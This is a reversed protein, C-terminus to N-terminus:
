SFKNREMWEVAMCRMVVGVRDNVKIKEYLAKTHMRVTNVSIFLEEGIVNANKSQCIRQAIEIQRDSLGFYEQVKDWHTIRVTPLGDRGFSTGFSKREECLSHVANLIQPPPCPKELVRDAGSRILEGRVKNDSVFASLMVVPIDIQEARLQKLMARGDIGPMRMDLILCDPLEIRLQKLCEKPGPFGEPEFGNSGSLLELLSRLYIADDDVAFVRYKAKGDTNLTV